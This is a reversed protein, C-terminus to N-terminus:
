TTPVPLRAPANLERYVAPLVRRLYPVLRVFSRGTTRFRYSIPVEAYRYGKGLLDLTLVQAYNFDHVIEADAAAARSLARYGSQGDTVPTRACIRLLLTLVQNGVRRHPLMRDIRGAFRSGVVYDAEGALIPRVLRELEAPDYEEDADCFAVVAAGYEEVALRLGYRVGAGLGGAGPLPRVDAGAAVARAATSDSSHDDIVVVRVPRGAVSAPARGVVAAVAAEEDRAPLFLVVPGDPSALSPRAPLEQPALRFRGLLSPAPLVVAVAGAVLSYATKLAHATLAAALGTGADHGLAVFAATAAAEYTGFGSPAFALVQAAVAASTVLVAESASLPVGAWHAVQWIVVAEALWASGTLAAVRFGPLRIAGPHLVALRRLWVVGAAAGVAVLALVAWGWPGLLDAFAAPAVVAGLVGMALIDATRLTLTSAAAPALPIRVRRVVSVVRLPEGLRFPLVHNAGLAVHLAALAQGLPLGPLVLRWAVSRLLFAAAFAALAAGVGVPDSGAARVTARLAETDVGRVVVVVAPVTLLLGLPVLLRPSARRRSM